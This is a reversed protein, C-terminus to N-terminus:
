RVEGEIAEVRLWQGPGWATLTVYGGRPDEADKRESLILGGERIELIGRVKETKVFVMARLEGDHGRRVDHSLVEVAFKGEGL